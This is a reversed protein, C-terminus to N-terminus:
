LSVIAYREGHELTDGIYEIAHIASKSASSLTKFYVEFGEEEWHQIIVKDFNAESADSAIVLRPM